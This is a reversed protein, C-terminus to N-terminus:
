LIFIPKKKHGLHRREFEGCRWCINEGFVLTLHGKVVSMSAAALRAMWNGHARFVVPGEPRDFFEYWSDISILEEESSVDTKRTHKCTTNEKPVIRFLPDEFVPLIKLDGMWRGKDHMSIVTELFYIETDRIGRLGTDIPLVFETFSMHLSTSKFSDTIVGDFEDHNILNWDKPDIERTRPQDPPILLAIGARGVNGRIRTIKSDLQNAPDSLLPTAIYLSDGSSMAMVSQLGTSALDINGSELMAICAFSSALDLELPEFAQISAVQSFSIEEVRQDSGSAQSGAYTLSAKLDTNPMWKVNHLKSSTLTMAITADILHKYTGVITCLVKLSLMHHRLTLSNSTMTPVEGLHRLLGSQSIDMSPQAMTNRIDDTGFVQAVPREEKLIRYIAATAPDGFVFEFPVGKLVRPKGKQVNGRFLAMEAFVGFVDDVSSAVMKQDSFEAPANSWFMRDGNQVNHVPGLLDDKGLIEYTEGDAEEYRSKSRDNASNDMMWRTHASGTASAETKIPIVTALAFATEGPKSAPLAYHIILSRPDCGLHMAKGRLLRIRGQHGVVLSLLNQPQQLAVVSSLSKPTVGLFEPCRRRGYNFLRTYETQTIDDAALYTRAADALCGFWSKMSPRHYGIKQNSDREETCYKWLDRLLEAAKKISFGTERWGHFICGLAVQLLQVISIRSGDTNLAKEKRIPDGYFRYYALPLSWTIGKGTTERESPQQLSVAPIMSQLGLTLIGRPDILPDEQKIFHNSTSLVSMDPFLHWASLALLISSNEISQPMGEILRNLAIMASTWASVVSDYVDSKTNVPVDINEIILKLQKQRVRNADDGARLWARASSDWNALQQRTLSSRAAWAAFVNHPDSGDVASLQEKRKLVIEEWISTAESPSWLKALMCALLHIAVAGAGSTAAAWISGGDVGQHAAFAGSAGTARSGKLSISAIESARIGYANYLSPTSPLIHEFMARLKRATTHIDGDEAVERRHPSLASGLAKYEQPAETKFLAFDFNLAALAVTTEQTGSLVSATFKGLSM